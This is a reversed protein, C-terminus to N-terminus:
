SGPATEPVESNQSAELTQAVEPPPAFEPTEAVLEPPAEVVVPAPEPRQRLYWIVESARQWLRTAIWLWAVFQALLFAALIREASVFRVWVYLALLTGVWAVLSLRFYMWFLSGFNYLTLKLARILTRTMGREDEVVARVQAMDFWLRVAMLLLVVGGLGVVEVWFGLMEYSSNDSLNGSLHSIGNALLSIPVLVAVLWLVLRVFRWFFAGCGQFFEGPVLMRNRAYAELVGGTAFLMFLFFIAGFSVAGMPRSSLQVEPTAALELFYGLDFGHFLRQAALSHDLVKALRTSMALASFFGLVLNVAYVWWLIRQTQWLLAWGAAVTGAKNKENM